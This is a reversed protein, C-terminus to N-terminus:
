WSFPKIRVQRWLKEGPTPESAAGLTCSEAQVFHLPITVEGPGGGGGQYVCLSVVRIYACYRSVNKFVKEKPTQAWREFITAACKLLSDYM